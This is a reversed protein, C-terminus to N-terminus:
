VVRLATQILQFATNKKMANQPVPRRFDTEIVTYFATNQAILETRLREFNSFPEELWVKFFFCQATHVGRDTALYAPRSLLAVQLQNTFKLEGLVKSADVRSLSKEFTKKM